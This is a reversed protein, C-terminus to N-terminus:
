AYSPDGIKWSRPKFFHNGRIEVDTPVLSPVSPDAGGFLVVEGAGELHNNAIKFPGPGNWGAIAQSDAGVEHVDSIYSDVVASWASNLGVGRRLDAAANGHIYVRDLVPLHPIESSTCQEDSDDGLAVLGYNGRVGSALAFELGVIRFHHAGAATRLAPESSPSVIKPLVSAYTPGIRQGVPPLSSDPASTRLVIYGSGPKVPLTFPGVFTAGAQLKIVDGPQAADLAAQLNGGANVQYVIGPTSPYTTDVVSQPLQPATTALALGSSLFIFAIFAAAGTPRAALYSSRAM